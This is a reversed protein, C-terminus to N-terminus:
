EPEFEEGHRADTGLRGVADQEVGEPPRDEDHIGVRPPDQGAVAEEPMPGAVLLDAGQELTVQWAVGPEEVFVV